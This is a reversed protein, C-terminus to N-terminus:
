DPFVSRPFEERFGAKQMETMEPWKKIIVDHLLTLFWHATISHRQLNQVAKDPNRALGAILHFNVKSIAEDGIRQRLESVVLEAINLATTGTTLVDDVIVVSHLGELQQPMRVRRNTGKEAQQIDQPIVVIQRYAALTAIAGATHPSSKSDVNVLVTTERPFTSQIYYTMAEIYPINTEPQCLLDGHDVYVWSETGSRMRFRGDPDDAIKVGGSQLLARRYAEVRKIMEENQRTETGNM